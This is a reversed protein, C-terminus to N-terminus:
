FSSPAGSDARRRRRLVQPRMAAKLSGWPTPAVASSPDIRRFEITGGDVFTTISLTDGDISHTFHRPFDGLFKQQPNVEDALERGDASVSETTLQVFVSDGDVRYTGTGELTFQKVVPLDAHEAAAQM